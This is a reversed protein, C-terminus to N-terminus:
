AGATAPALKTGPIETWAIGHNEGFQSVFALRFIGEFTIIPLSAIGAPYNGALPLVYVVCALCLTVIGLILLGISMVSGRIAGAIINCLFYQICIKKHPLFIERWAIRIAPRAKIRRVYMLPVALMFLICSAVITVLAILVALLLFVILATYTWGTAAYEGTNLMSRFDPILFLGALIMAALWLNFVVLEWTIYMKMLSNGIERWEAWSQKMEFRGKVLNDYFVMTARGNMWRCLFYIPLILFIIALNMVLIIMKLNDNVWNLVDDLSLEVAHRAGFELSFTLAPPMGFGALMMAALLGFTLWKKLRFPGFLITGTRSLALDLPGKISIDPAM